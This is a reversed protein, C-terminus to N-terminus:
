LRGLLDQLMSQLKDTELLNKKSDLGKIKRPLIESTMLWPLPGMGIGFGIIFGIMSTMPLWHFASQAYPQNIDHLYSYLGLGAMGLTTLATSVLLLVRRGAKDVLIIAIITVFFQLSCLQFKIRKM